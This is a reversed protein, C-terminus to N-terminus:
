SNFAMQVEATGSGEEGRGDEGVEQKLKKLKLANKQDNVKQQAEKLLMKNVTGAIASAQIDPRASDSLIDAFYGQVKKSDIIGWTNLFLNRNQLIFEQIGKVSMNKDFKIYGKSKILEASKSRMEKKTPNSYREYEKIFEEPPHYFDVGTMRILGLGGVVRPYVFYVQGKKRNVTISYPKVRVFEASRYVCEYFYHFIKRPQSDIYSFDPTVFSVMPRMHGVTQLMKGIERNQIKWFERAPLGVGAEDWIPTEGFKTIAEIRESFQKDTYLLDHAFDFDDNLLWAKFCAFISKGTRPLGVVCDLQNWGENHVKERQRHLFRLWFNDQDAIKKAEPQEYYDRLKQILEQKFLLADTM